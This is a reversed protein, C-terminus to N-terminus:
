LSWKINLYYGKYRFYLFLDIYPKEIRLFKEFYKPMITELREDGVLYVDKDDSNKGIIAVEGLSLIVDLLEDMKRNGSGIDIPSYWLYFFLRGYWSNDLIAPNVEPPIAYNKENVSIGWFECVEKDLEAYPIQVGEKSYFEVSVNRARM